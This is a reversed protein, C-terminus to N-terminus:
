RGGETRATGPYEEVIKSLRQRAPEDGPLHERALAGPLAGIPHDVYHALWEAVAV